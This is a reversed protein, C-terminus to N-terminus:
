TGDRERLGMGDRQFYAVAGAEPSYQTIGFRLNITPKCVLQNIFFLKPSNADSGTPLEFTGILSGTVAEISNFTPASGIDGNIRFVNIQNQGTSNYQPEPVFNFEFSYPGHSAPPCALNTFSVALDERDSNNPGQSVHFDFPIGRSALYRYRLIVTSNGGSSSNSLALNTSRDPEASYIQFAASPGIIDDRIKLGRYGPLAAALTSFWFAAIFSLLM